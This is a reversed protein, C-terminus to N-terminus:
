LNGRGTLTFAAWYCPHAYPQDTDLRGEEEKLNQIEHKLEKQWRYGLNELHSLKEIWQILHAITVTKLWKQTNHLSLAPPQNQLLQQYFYISFWCSAVENVPWLTSLVNAAGAKLFASALGVYETKIDDNGTLATECAALVILEYSSLDLQSIDKATLLGDTLALASDAPNRSNYAGHGTFHFTAFSKQLSKLVNDTSADNSKVCTTNKVLHRIIASELQAFPMPPQKTAPDEVSLLPIYTKNKSPRERLNLGIQVSPLYTCCYDHFLTHIPLLHLDRHPVLILNQVTDPIQQCITDIQLIKQRLDELLSVLNQRWPHNEGEPGTIKKSAYDRYDKKWVQVWDALQQAQFTRNFDLIDPVNRKDTLLFTSLSNPFAQSTRNGGLTDPANKKDDLLVTSRNDSSLHWYILATDPTCLTQMAEYSPYIVTEKWADLIWTLCRNKFREATQLATIPDGAQIWVDVEIQSVGSFKAELQQKQLITPAQNLLTHLLKSSAKLHTQATSNDGQVLLVRIMLQLAELRLEPFAEVSLVSLALNLCHRTKQWYLSPNHGLQQELKGQEFHAEGLGLHLGGWGDSHPVVQTLGFELTIVQGSYGRQNLQPNRQNLTAGV